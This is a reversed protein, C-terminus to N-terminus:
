FFIHLHVGSSLKCCVKYRAKQNNGTETHIYNGYEEGSLRSILYLKLNSTHSCWTKDNNAPMSYINSSKNFLLIIILYNRLFGSQVFCM